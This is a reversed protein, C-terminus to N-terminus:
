CHAQSPPVNRPAKSAQSPLPWPPDGHLKKSRDIMLFCRSIYGNEMAIDLPYIYIYM